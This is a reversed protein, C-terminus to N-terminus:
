RGGSEGGSFNNQYWDPRIHTRPAFYAHLQIKTRKDTEVVGGSTVVVAQANCQITQAPFSDCVEGPLPEAPGEDLIPTRVATTWKVQAPLIPPGGFKWVFRAFGTNFGNPTAPITLEARGIAAILQIQVIVLLNPVVPTPVQLLQAGLLFSWTDPRNYKISALQASQQFVTGDSVDPVTVVQSSGWMHWPAVSSAKKDMEIKRVLAFGGLGALVAGGAGLLLGRRNM